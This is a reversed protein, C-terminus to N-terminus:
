QTGVVKLVRVLLLSHHYRFLACWEYDEDDCPCNEERGVPDNWKDAVVCDADPKRRTFWQKHGMLCDAEGGKGIKRAYWKEM